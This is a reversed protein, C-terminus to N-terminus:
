RAPEDGAEAHLCPRLREFEAELAAVHPVLQERPTGHAVLDEIKAGLLALRLTGVQSGSGKLSHAHLRLVADNGQEFAARLAALRRPVDALFDHLAGTALEPDLVRLREVLAPDFGGPLDARVALALSTGELTRPVLRDIGRRAWALRAQPADDTVLGLVLPRDANDGALAATLAPWLGDTADVDLLVLAPRRAGLAALADDASSAEAPTCGLTDLAATVASRLRDDAVAVLALRLATM